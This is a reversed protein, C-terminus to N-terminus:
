KDNQGHKGKRGKMPPEETPTIDKIGLSILIDCMESPTVHKNNHKALAEILDGFQPLIKWADDFVQLQPVQQGELEQWRVAFEGATGRGDPYYYGIMIQDAEGHVAYWARRYHVFQRKYSEKDM